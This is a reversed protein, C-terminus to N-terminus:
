RAVVEMILGGEHRESNSDTIAFELKHKDGDAGAKVRITIVTGAISNSGLVTSTSDTSDAMKTAKPHGTYWSSITAGKKMKPAFDYTIDFEEIPEKEFTKYAQHSM